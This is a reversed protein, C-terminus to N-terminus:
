RGTEAFLGLTNTGPRQVVGYSLKSIVACQRIGVQHVRSYRADVTKNCSVLPRRLLFCDNDSCIGIRNLALRDAPTGLRLILVPAKTM